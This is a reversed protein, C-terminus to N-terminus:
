ARAAAARRGRCSLPLLGLAALVLALSAPEPLRQQQPDLVDMFVQLSGSRNAGNLNMNPVYALTLGDESIVAEGSFAGLTDTM